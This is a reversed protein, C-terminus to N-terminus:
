NWTRSTFDMASRNSIGLLCVAASRMTRLFHLIESHQKQKPNQKQKQKKRKMVQLQLVSHYKCFSILPEYFKVRIKRQVIKEQKNAEKTPNHVNRVTYHRADPRDIPQFLFGGSAVDVFGGIVLFRYSQLVYEADLSVPRPNKRDIRDEFIVIVDHSVAYRRPQHPFPVAVFARRVRRLRQRRRRRRRRRSHFSSRVPAAANISLANQNSQFCM